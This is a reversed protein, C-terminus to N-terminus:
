QAAVRKDNVVGHWEIRGDAFHVAIERGEKMWGRGLFSEYEGVPKEYVMPADTGEDDQYQRSWRDGCCSCDNGNACGDFYLGKVVATTNADAADKAEVIVHATIGFDESYDFSGGSNNQSFHFFKM